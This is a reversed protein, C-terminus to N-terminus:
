SQSDLLFMPWACDTALATVDRPQHGQTQVTQVANGINGSQREVVQKFLFKDNLM